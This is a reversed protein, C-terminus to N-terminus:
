APQAMRRVKTAQLCDISQRSNHPGANDLHVDLGKLSKRRSRSGIDAILSPVVVDYFFASNESEGKPVDVFSHIGHVPWIVLILCKETTVALSTV